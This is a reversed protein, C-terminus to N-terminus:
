GDSTLLNKRFKYGFNVRNKKVDTKKNALTNLM